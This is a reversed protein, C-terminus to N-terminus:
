GQAIAPALDKNPAPIPTLSAQWDKGEYKLIAAILPIGCVACHHGINFPALEKPGALPNFRMEMTPIWRTNSCNPCQLPKTFIQAPNVPPATNSLIPRGQSDTLM